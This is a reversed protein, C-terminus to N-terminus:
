KQSASETRYMWPKPMMDHEPSEAKPEEAKVVEKKKDKLSSPERDSEEESAIGRDTEVVPGEVKMNEGMDASRVATNAPTHAKYLLKPSKYETAYALSCICLTLMTLSIMKSNKM